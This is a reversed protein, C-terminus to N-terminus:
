AAAPRLHHRHRRPDREALIALQLQRLHEAADARYGEACSTHAPMGGVGEADLTWLDVATHCLICEM